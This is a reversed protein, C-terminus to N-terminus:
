YTSKFDPSPSFGHRLLHHIGFLYSMVQPNMLFVDIRQDFPFPNWGGPNSPFPDEWLFQDIFSNFQLSLFAKHLCFSFLLSISPARSTEPVMTGILLFFKSLTYLSVFITVCVPPILTYTLNHNHPALFSSETDIHSYLFLNCRRNQLRIQFLILILVVNNRHM